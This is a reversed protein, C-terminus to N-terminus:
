FVSPGLLLSAMPRDPALQCTTKNRFSLDDEDLLLYDETGRGEHDNKGRSCGGPATQVVKHAHEVFWMETLRQGLNYVKAEAIQLCPQRLRAIM